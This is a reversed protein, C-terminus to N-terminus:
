SDPLTYHLVGAVVIRDDRAANTCTSLVLIRDYASVPVGSGHMCRSMMEKMLQMFDNDDEFHTQIYDFDIHTYFVSFIEYTLIETETILIIYRNASFFDPELFYRLDHFKTGNRMNHGYIISNRDGFCPRNTYDLFISGAQNAYGYIDRHLYFNNDNGQLVAYSINTGAIYIFAVIDDNGTAERAAFIPSIFPDTEESAYQELNPRDLTATSVNMLEIHKMFINQMAAANERTIRADMAYRIQGYLNYVFMIGFGLASVVAVTLIIWKGKRKMVHM